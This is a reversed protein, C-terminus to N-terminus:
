SLRGARRLRYVKQRLVANYLAEASVGLRRAETRWRPDEYAALYGAPNTLRRRVRNLQQVSLHDFVARSM